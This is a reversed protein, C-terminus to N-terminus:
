THPHVGDASPTGQRHGQSGTAPQYRDVIRNYAEAIQTVATDANANGRLWAMLPGWWITRGIAFGHFGPTGAALGLWRAVRDEHAGAGLVVCSVHERGATRAAAVILECAASTEQGEVKWIEPEVGADQLAHIAQVTLNPRQTCAYDPHDVALHHPAPPVILELLLAPKRDALWDSLRALRAAQRQNLERDGEPNYRVLAKVFDPSFATIHEDFQEGYEFDFEEHSSQEVCIALPVGAAKARKAARAGHLEDILAAVGVSPRQARAQLLGSLILDKGRRMLERDAESPASQIGYLGRQFSTRHDFALMHIPRASSASM